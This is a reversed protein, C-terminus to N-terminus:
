SKEQRPKANSILYYIGFAGAMFLVLNLVIKKEPQM